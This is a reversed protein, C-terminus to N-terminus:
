DELSDIKRLKIWDWMIMPSVNDINMDKDIPRGDKWCNFGSTRLKKYGNGRIMYCMTSRFAGQCCYFEQVYKGLDKEKESCGYKYSARYYISDVVVSVINNNGIQKCKKLHKTNARALIVAAIHAYPHDKYKKFDGDRQHMQGITSNMVLKADPDARRLDYFYRWTKDMTYESAKMLITKSDKKCARNMREKSGFLYPWWFEDATWERTDFVDKEACNGSELWFAFPYEDTPEVIGDVEIMERANPMRGLACSPYHSSDDIGCLGGKWSKKDTCIYEKNMYYFQKPICDKFDAKVTGFATYLAKQGLGTDERFKRTFITLAGSKTKTRTNKAEDYVNTSVIKYGDDDRYYLRKWNGTKEIYYDDGFYASRLTKKKIKTGGKRELKDIVDMFGDCTIKVLQAEKTWNIYKLGHWFKYNM